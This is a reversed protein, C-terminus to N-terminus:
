IAIVSIDSSNQWFLALCGQMVCQKRLLLQGTIIGDLKLMWFLLSSLLRVQVCALGFHLFSFYFYYNFFFDSTGHVPHMCRLLSALTRVATLIKKHKPCM